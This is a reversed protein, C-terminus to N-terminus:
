FIKLTIVVVTQALDVLEAQGNTENNEGPRM